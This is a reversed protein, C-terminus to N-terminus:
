TWSVSRALTRFREPRRPGFTIAPKVETEEDLSARLDSVVKKMTADGDHWERPIPRLNGVCGPQSENHGVGLHLPGTGSQQACLEGLPGPAALRLCAERGRVTVAQGDDDGIHVNLSQGVPGV